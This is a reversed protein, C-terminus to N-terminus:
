CTFCREWTLRRDPFVGALLMASSVLLSIVISEVV